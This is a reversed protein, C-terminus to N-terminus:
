DETSFSIIEQSDRHRFSLSLREKYGHLKEYSPNESYQNELDRLVKLVQGDDAYEGYLVETHTLKDPAQVSKIVKINRQNLVQEM